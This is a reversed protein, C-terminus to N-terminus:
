NLKNEREREKGRETESLTHAINYLSVKFLYDELRLSVSAPLLSRYGV